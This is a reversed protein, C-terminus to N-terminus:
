DVDFEGAKVAAVFARWEDLDCLVRAHDPHRSNRLHVLDGVRRAELCGASVCRSSRQWTGGLPKRGSVGGHSCETTM